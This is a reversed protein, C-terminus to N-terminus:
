LAMARVFEDAREASEFLLAPKGGPLDYPSTLVWGMPWLKLSLKRGGPRETVLHDPAVTQWDNM